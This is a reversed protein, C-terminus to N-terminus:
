PIVNKSLVPRCCIKFENELKKKTRYLRLSIPLDSILHIRQSDINVYEVDYKDREFIGAYKSLLAPFKDNVSHFSQVNATAEIFEPEDSRYFIRVTENEPVNSNSESLHLSNLSSMSHFNDMLPVKKNNQFIQMRVCNINLKFLNSHPLGIFVYPLNNNLVFLEIIKSIRSIKFNVFFKETLAKHKLSQCVKKFM